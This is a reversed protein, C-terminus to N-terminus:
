LERAYMLTYDFHVHNNTLCFLLSVITKDCFQISNQIFVHTM